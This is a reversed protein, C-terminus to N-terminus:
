WFPSDSQFVNKINFEVAILFFVNVNMKRATRVSPIASSDPVADARAIYM